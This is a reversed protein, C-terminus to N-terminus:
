RNKRLYQHWTQVTRDNHYGLAIMRESLSDCIQHLTKVTQELRQIDTKSM